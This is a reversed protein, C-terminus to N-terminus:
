GRRASRGYEVLDALAARTVHLEEGNPISRDSRARKQEVAVQSAERREWDPAPMGRAIARERRTDRDVDVFLILDCVEDYGSEFLLPVDLVVSDNRALAASRADHLIRRVIPHVRQELARLAAPERFVREAIHSRQVEGSADIVESGFTEVLWPRIEPGQLVARAELDADLVVYGAEALIRAVSSKGSAIGGCLGITLPWPPM